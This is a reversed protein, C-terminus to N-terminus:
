NKQKFDCLTRRLLIQCEYDKEASFSNNFTTIDLPLLVQSFFVDVASM